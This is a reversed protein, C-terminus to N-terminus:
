NAIIEMSHADARSMIHDSTATHFRAGDLTGQVTYRPVVIPLVAENWIESQHSKTEDPESPCTSIVPILTIQDNVCECEESSEAFLTIQEIYSRASRWKKAM